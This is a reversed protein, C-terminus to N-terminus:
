PHHNQALRDILLDYRQKYLLRLNCANDERLIVYVYTVSSCPLQMIGVAKKTFLSNVLDEL